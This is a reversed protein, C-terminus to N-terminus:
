LLLVGLKVYTYAHKNGIVWGKEQLENVRSKHIRTKEKTEHNVMYTTGFQSNGSGTHTESIRRCADETQRWGTRAAIEEPTYHTKKPKIVKEKKPKDSVRGRSQGVIEGSAWRTDATSIRGLIEGTM